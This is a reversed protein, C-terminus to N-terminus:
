PPPARNAQIAGGLLQSLDLGQAFSVGSLAFLFVVLVATAAGASRKLWRISTLRRYRGASLILTGIGEASTHGSFARIYDPLTPIAAPAVAAIFPSFKRM